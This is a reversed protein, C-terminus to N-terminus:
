VRGTYLIQRSKSWGDRLYLEFASWIDHASQYLPASTCVHYIVGFSIHESDRSRETITFYTIIDRFRHLISVTAISFIIPFRIHGISHRWSLHGKTVKFNFTV